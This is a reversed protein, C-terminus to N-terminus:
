NMITEYTNEKGKIVQLAKSYSLLFSITEKRPNQLKEQSAATSTSSIFYQKAM